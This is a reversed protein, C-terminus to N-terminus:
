HYYKNIIVILIMIRRIASLLAMYLVLKSKFFNLLYGYNETIALYNLSDTLNHRLLM